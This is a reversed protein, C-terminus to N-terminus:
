LRAQANDYGNKGPVVGFAGGGRGFMTKLDRALLEPKETAMFHGGADNDSEFVIPGINKTWSKPLV